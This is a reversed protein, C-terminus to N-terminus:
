HARNKTIFFLWVDLNRNEKKSKVIEISIRHGFWDCLVYPIMTPRVGFPDMESAGEPGHYETHELILVGDDKLQDLWTGLAQKPNWSQDHSNTYVFDFKGVWEDNRDHFDWEVSNRFQSATDSIDTGLTTFDFNDIFFNQEFGNRAGHCLGSIKRNPYLEKLKDGILQLTKADAWVNNLKKKNYLIQVAKYKEYSEYEHLYFDVLATSRVVEYNFPKLMRNAVRQLHRLIFPKKTSM